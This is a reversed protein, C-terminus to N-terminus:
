TWSARVSQEQFAVPEGAIEASCIATRLHAAGLSAALLLDDSSVLARVTIDLKGFEQTVALGTRLIAADSSPPEPALELAARLRRLAPEAMPGFEGASLVLEVLCSATGATTV